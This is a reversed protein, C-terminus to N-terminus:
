DDDHRDTGGTPYLLTQEKDHRRTVMDIHDSAVAGGFRIVIDIGNGNNMGTMVMKHRAVKLVGRNLDIKAYVNKTHYRYVGAEERTFETFPADFLTAQDFNVRIAGEPIGSYTFAVTLEVKGDVKGPKGFAAKAQRVNMRFMSNVTVTLTASASAVGD